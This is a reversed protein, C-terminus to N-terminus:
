GTSIVHPLIPHDFVVTNTESNQGSTKTRFRGNAVQAAFTSISGKKVTVAGIGGTAAVLRTSQYFLEGAGVIFVGIGTHILAVRLVM